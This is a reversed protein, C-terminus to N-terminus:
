TLLSRQHLRTHGARLRGQRLARSARRQERWQNQQRHRRERQGMGLPGGVPRVGSGVVDTLGGAPPLTGDARESPEATVPAPARRHHPDDALASLPFLGHGPEASESVTPGSRLAKAQAGALRLDEVAGLLGVLQTAM